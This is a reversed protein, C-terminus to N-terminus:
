EKYKWRYGGATIYKQQHRACGNIQTRQIGTVRSAEIISPYEAIVNGQADIQQVPKSRKGKSRENRTGHNCNETHTVWELNDARNNAKDEDKHNVENLHRPNPVFHQAVLRHVKFPKSVGDIDFLGVQHYDAQCIKHKLVRPKITYPKLSGWRTMRMITRGLSRVRGLNSVEYLGEYGAVARWEETRTEM